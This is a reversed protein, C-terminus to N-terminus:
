CEGPLNSLTENGEDLHARQPVAAPPYGLAQHACVTNYIKEWQRLERNPRKTELWCAPSKTSSRPTPTHNAREVAGKLKSLQAAPRVPAPRAAALTQVPCAFERAATSQV